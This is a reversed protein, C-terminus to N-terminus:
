GMRPDYDEFRKITKFIKRNNVYRQLLRVTDGGKTHQKDYVMVYPDYDMDRVILVLLLVLVIWANEIWLPIHVVPWSWKILKCLKLVIFVIQLVGLFGMGGKGASSKHENM